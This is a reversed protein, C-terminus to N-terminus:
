RGDGLDIRTLGFTRGVEDVVGVALYRARDNVKVDLEYTFYGARAAELKAEDLEFPQTKQTIDSLEALDAAAAVYVSFKGSHKGRGQPLVTLEGIPIRVQVPVTANRGRTRRGAKAQIAIQSDQEARFLTARLRDRMRTEDSKEVLQRRARVILEPNKTKVVVDRRTDKGSSTVRYALSYYDTIDSAIEPLLKAIDKAGSANVGGTRQAIRVHAVSENEWTLYEVFPDGHMDVGIPYIPYITVGSANAADIMEDLLQATGFRQRLHYPIYPHGSGYAFEAGAVEGLRRTALLLVKKGDIGAMAHITSNIAAVRVKMEGYAVLMPLQLSADSRSAGQAQVRAPPPSSSEGKDRPTRAANANAQAAAADADFQRLAAAEERVAEANNLQARLAEGRIGGVAKDIAGADDTFELYKTGEHRSWIVVSVTDGAAVTRRLVNRLEAVISDVAFNPLQMREFFIVITRKERPAAESPAEAEVGVRAAASRESFESFNSIEKRIGNEYIEFDDRTLGYVRKGARDTVFVDVNAISVDLTERLGPVDQATLALTSLCLVALLKKM